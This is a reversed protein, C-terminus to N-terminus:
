SKKVTMKNHRQSVRSPHIGAKRADGYKKQLMGMRARMRARRKMAAPGLEDIQEEEDIDGNTSALKSVIPLEKGILQKFTKM